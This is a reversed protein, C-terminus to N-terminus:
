DPNGRWTKWVYMSLVFTLFATLTTLIIGFGSSDQDSGFIKKFGLTIITKIGEYAGSVGGKFQGGTVTTRDGAAITSEYLAKTSSNTQTTYTVASNEISSKANNLDTDNEFLIPVNNDIGFNTAYGMIAIAFLFAMVMSGMFKIQGM